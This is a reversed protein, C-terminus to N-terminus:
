RESDFMLEEIGSRERILVIEQWAARLNLMPRSALSVYLRWVRTRETIVLGKM